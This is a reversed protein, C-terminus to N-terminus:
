GLQQATNTLKGNMSSGLARAAIVVVLGIVAILMAYEAMTAGRSNRLKRRLDYFLLAM